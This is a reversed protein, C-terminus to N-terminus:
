ELFRKKRLGTVRINSDEVGMTKTANLSEVPNDFRNILAPKDTGDQESATSDGTKNPLMKKPDCYNRSAM